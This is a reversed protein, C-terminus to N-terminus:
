IYSVSPLKKSKRAIPVATSSVSSTAKTEKVPSFQQPTLASSDVRMQGSKVDMHAAVEKKLRTEHQSVVDSESMIPKTRDILRSDSPSSVNIDQDVTL